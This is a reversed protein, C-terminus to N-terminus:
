ASININCTNRTGVISPVPWWCNNGVNLYLSFFIAGFNKKEFQSMTQKAVVVLWCRRTNAFLNESRHQRHQGKARWALGNRQGVVRKETQSARHPSFVNRQCHFYSLFTTKSFSLVSSVFIKFFFFFDGELWTAIEILAPAM